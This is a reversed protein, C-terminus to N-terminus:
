RGAGAAMKHTKGHSERGGVAPRLGPPHTTAHVPTADPVEDSRRKNRSPMPSYRGRYRLNERTTKMCGADTQGSLWRRGASGAGRLCGTGCPRDHRVLRSCGVAAGHGTWIAGTRHPPWCRRRSPRRTPVSGRAGGPPIPSQRRPWASRALGRTQCSAGIFGCHVGERTAIFAHVCILRAGGLHRVTTGTRTTETTLIDKRPTTTAVHDLIRALPPPSPIPRSLSQNVPLTRVVGVFDSPQHRADRLRM